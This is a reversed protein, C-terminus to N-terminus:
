PCDAESTQGHSLVRDIRFSGAYEVCFGCDLQPGAAGEVVAFTREYPKRALERYRLRLHSLLAPDGDVWLPESAGCPQFTEVEPAMVVFGRTTSSPAGATTALAIAAILVIKCELQAVPCMPLVHVPLMPLVDAAYSDHGKSRRLELWKLLKMPVSTPHTPASCSPDRARRRGTRANCHLEAAFELGGSRCEKVFRIREM